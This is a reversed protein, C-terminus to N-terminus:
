SIFPTPWAKGADSYGAIRLHSRPSAIPCVGYCLRRLSPSPPTARDAGRPGATGEVALESGYVTFPEEIANIALLLKRVVTLDRKM